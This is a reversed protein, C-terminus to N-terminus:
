KVNTISVANYRVHAATVMTMWPIVLMVHAITAVLQIPVSTNVYEMLTLVNM